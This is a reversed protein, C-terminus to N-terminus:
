QLANSLVEKTLTASNTGFIRHNAKLTGQVRVGEIQLFDHLQTQSIRDALLIKPKFQFEPFGKFITKMVYKADCITLNQEEVQMVIVNTIRGKLPGKDQLKSLLAIGNLDMSRQASDYQFEDISLIRDTCFGLKVISRYRARTSEVPDGRLTVGEGEAM